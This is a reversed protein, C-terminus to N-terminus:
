GDDFQTNPEEAADQVHPERILGKQAKKKKLCMIYHGLSQSRADNEPLKEVWSCSVSAPSSEEASNFIPDWKTGGEGGYQQCPVKSGGSAPPEFFRDLTLTLAQDLM